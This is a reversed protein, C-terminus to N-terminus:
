AAKAPGYTMGLGSTVFAWERYDPPRILRGDSSFTPGEADGTPGQPGGWAYVAFGLAALGSAIPLMLASRSLIRTADMAEDGGVTSSPGTMIGDGSGRLM